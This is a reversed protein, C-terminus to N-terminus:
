APQAVFIGKGCVHTRVCQCVCIVCGLAWCGAGAWRRKAAVALTDTPGHWAFLAAGRTRGAQGKLRMAPLDFANVGDDSPM